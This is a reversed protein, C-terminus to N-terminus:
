AEWDAALLSELPQNTAQHIPSQPADGWGVRGGEPPLAKLTDPWLTTAIQDQTEPPIAPDFLLQAHDLALALAEALEPTACDAFFDGNRTIKTSGFGRGPWVKFTPRHHAQATSVIPPRQLRDWIRVADPLTRAGIARMALARHLEITRPSLNLRQAIEKNMLGQCVLAIVDRQRRTLESPSM